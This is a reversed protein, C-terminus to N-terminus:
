LPITIQNPSIFSSQCRRTHRFFEQHNARAGNAYFKGIKVVCQTNVGRHDLDHIPHHGHFIRLNRSKRLLSEFLLAHFDARFGHHFLKIAALAGDCRM